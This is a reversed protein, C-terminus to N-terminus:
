CEDCASPWDAGCVSCTADASGRLVVRHSGAVECAPCIGYNADPLDANEADGQEIMHLIKTQRDYCYWHTSYSGEDTTLEIAAKVAQEPTTPGDDEAYGVVLSVVFRDRNGVYTNGLEKPDLEPPTLASTSERM